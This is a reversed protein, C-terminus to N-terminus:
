SVMQRERAGRWCRSYTAMLLFPVPARHGRGEGQHGQGTDTEIQEVDRPGDNAGKRDACSTETSEPGLESSSQRQAGSQNEKGDPGSRVMSSMAGSLLAVWTSVPLAYTNTDM